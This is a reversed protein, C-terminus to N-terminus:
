TTWQHCCVFNHSSKHVSYKESAAIWPQKSLDFAFMVRCNTQRHFCCFISTVSYTHWLQKSVTSLCYSICSISFTSFRLLQFTKKSRRRAQHHERLTEALVYFPAAWSLTCASTSPCSYCRLYICNVHLSQRACPHIKLVSQHPSSLRKTVNPCSAKTM